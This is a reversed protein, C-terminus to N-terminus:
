VNIKICNSNGFQSELDSDIKSAEWTQSVQQRGTKDFIGSVVQYNGNSLKSKLITAYSSNRNKNNSVWDMIASFALAAGAFLVGIIIWTLPDM